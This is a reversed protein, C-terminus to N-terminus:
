TLYAALKTAIDEWGGRHKAVSEEDPLQDHTLVIETKEDRHPRFEVTVMTRKGHTADSIWTFVLRNPPDIELYEGSHVYERKEGRMIIRFQGGVRMDLEAVPVSTSGPCMWEKLSEADTWAAFVVAPPAPLIRVLRLSYGPSGQTTMM